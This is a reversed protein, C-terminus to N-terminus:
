VKGEKSESNVTAALSSTNTSSDGMNELTKDHNQQYIELKQTAWYLTSDVDTAKCFTGVTLSFSSSTGHINNWYAEKLQPPFSSRKCPTPPSNLTHLAESISLKSTSYISSNKASSPSQDSPSASQPSIHYNETLHDVLPPDFSLFPGCLLFARSSKAFLSFAGYRTHAKLQALSLQPHTQLSRCRSSDPELQHRPSKFVFSTRPQTSFSNPM